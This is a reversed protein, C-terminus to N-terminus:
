KTETLTFKKVVVEGAVISKLLIYCDMNDIETYLDDEYVKVLDEPNSCISGILKQDDVHYLGYGTVNIKDSKVNSGLKRSAAETISDFSM